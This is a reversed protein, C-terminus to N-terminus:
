PRAPASGAERCLRHVLDTAQALTLASPALLPALDVDPFGRNNLRIALQERLLAPKVGRLEFLADFVVQYFLDRFRYAALDAADALGRCIAQLAAREAAVIEEHSRFPPSCMAAM